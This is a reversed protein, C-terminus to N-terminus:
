KSPTEQCRIPCTYRHCTLNLNWNLITCCYSYCCFTFIYNNSIKSINKVWKACLINKSIRTCINKSTKYTIQLNWCHTCFIYVPFTFSIICLITSTCESVNLQSWM